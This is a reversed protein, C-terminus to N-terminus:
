FKINTDARFTRGMPDGKVDKIEYEFKITMNKGVPKAFGLTNQEFEKGSQNTSFPSMSNKEYNRYEYSAKWDGVPAGLVVIFAKNDDDKDSLGYEVGVDVKDIQTGAYVSATDIRNGATDDDRKYRYSGAGLNFDGVKKKVVIASVEDSIHTNTKDNYDKNGFVLQVDFGEMKTDFVGGILHPNTALLDKNYGPDTLKAALGTFAKYEQRGAKFRLTNDPKGQIYYQDILFKNGDDMQDFYYEGYILRTKLSYNENFDYGVNFRLYFRNRDDWAADGKKTSEYRIRMDGDFNAKNVLDTVPAAMVSATSVVFMAAVAAAIKKKMWFDGM